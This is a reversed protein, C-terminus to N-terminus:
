IIKGFINKRHFILFDQSPPDSRPSRFRLPKLISKIYADSKTSIIINMRKDLSFYGRDFLRDHIPCFCIANRPNLRNEENIAWPVIHSCVLLDKKKIKCLACQNGYNEKVIKSLVNQNIRAKRQTSIETKKDQFNFDGKLIHKKVDKEYNQCDLLMLVIKKLRKPFKDIKSYRIKNKLYGKDDGSLGYYHLIYMAIFGGGHLPAPLGLIERQIERHSKGDILYSKIVDFRIEESYSLVKRLISKGLNYTKVM